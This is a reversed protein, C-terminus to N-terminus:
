CRGPDAVMYTVYTGRTPPVDGLRVWASVRGPTSAADGPKGIRKSDHFHGIGIGGTSRGGVNAAGVAMRDHHANTEALQGGLCSSYSGYLVSPRVPESVITAAGSAVDIGTGIGIGIGISVFPL